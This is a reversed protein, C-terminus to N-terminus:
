RRHLLKGVKLAFAFIHISTNLKLAIYYAYATPLYTAMFADCGVYWSFFSTKGFRVSVKEHRKHRYPM